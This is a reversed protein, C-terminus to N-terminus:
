FVFSRRWLSIDDFCATSAQIIKFSQQVQLQMNLLILQKILIHKNTVLICKIITTDSVSLMFCSIQQISVSDWILVASTGPQSTKFKSDLRWVFKLLSQLWLYNFALCFFCSISQTVSLTNDRWADSIKHQFNVARKRNELFDLLRLKLNHERTYTYTSLFHCLHM